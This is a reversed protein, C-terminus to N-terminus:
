VNESVEELQGTFRFNFITIVAVIIFIIISIAAALGYDNGRAGGFAIRYTYSILIDTYGAPTGAGPIPPGGANYLQIIAFNNFNFAFSGILLPGISVLLLPLTLRRFQYFPGAGDVRAAEYIDSPISQLAGTIILFMYPFGLWLNVMLIGIKAWFPDTFWGPNWNSGIVGLVPNLLGVWVKVTIFPPIAYPLILLVRLLRQMPIDPSNMNLALILGLIFTELVSLFAWIFTWTFIIFFPGRIAPDTLIKTFNELGVSVPFGPALTKGEASTFLGEQNVYATGDVQDIMADAEADYVYQQKTERAETSSTVQVGAEETGFTTGQNNSVFLFRQNSPQVTYGDLSTPVGDADVELGNVESAPVWDEGPLALYAQGSDPEVIWIAASGDEALLPTWNWTPAGEPVYTLNSIAAIAAPKEINRGTSYNTFATYVTFFIPYLQFLILFILGPAIWRLPITSKSVFFLTILLATIFFAAAFGYVGDNLLQWGTYTLFGVVAALAVIKFILGLVSGDLSSRSGKPKETGGAASVAM